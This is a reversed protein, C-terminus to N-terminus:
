VAVFVAVVVATAAVLEVASVSAAVEVDGMVWGILFIM